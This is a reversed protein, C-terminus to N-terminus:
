PKRRLVYRLHDGARGELEFGLRELLRVSAANDPEVRASVTRVGPQAFAWRSMLMVSASALGAGRAAPALAYGVEVDGDPGPPGHFGIDGVARGDTRRIIMYAFFPGFIVPGGPKGGTVKRLSELLPPLPFGEEWALGPEPVGGLLARARDLGIPEIRVRSTQLVPGLDPTPRVSTV